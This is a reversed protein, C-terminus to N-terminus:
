LMFTGDNPTKPVPAPVKLSLGLHAMLDEQSAIEETSLNVARRAAEDKKTDYVTAELTEASEEAAATPLPDYNTGVGGKAASSGQGFSHQDLRREPSEYGGLGISHTEEQELRMRHLHMEHADMMGDGDEDALMMEEQEIEGDNDLDLASLDDLYAQVGHFDPDVGLTSADTGFRKMVNYAVLFKITEDLSPVLSKLCFELHMTRVRLEHGETTMTEPVEYYLNARPPVVDPVFVRKRWAIPITWVRIGLTHLGTNRLDERSVPHGHAIRDLIWLLVGDDIHYKWGAEPRNTMYTFFKVVPDRTFDTTSNKVADYAECIIGILANLLVLFGFTIYSWMWINTEITPKLYDLPWAMGLLTALCTTLSARMEAFDGSQQGFLLTGTFAYVIAVLLLIILWYFLEMIAHGLTRSILGFQPHFNLNKLLQVCVLISSVAALQKYRDLLRTTENLDDLMLLADALEHGAQLWRGYANNDKYVKFHYKSQVESCWRAYNVWMFILAIHIAYNVLDLVNHSDTFYEVLGGQISSVEVIEEVLEMVERVLLVILLVCFAYELYKRKEDDSTESYYDTRLVHIESSREVSGTPNRDFRATVISYLKLEANFLILKMQIVQSQSDLYGGEKLYEVVDLARTRNMDIDFVVPFRSTTDLVEPDGQDPFFGFPLGGRDLEEPKYFKKKLKENTARYLKSSPEFTPDVGFPHEDIKPVGNADTLACVAQKHTEPMDIMVGEVDKCTSVRTRNQILIPGVLVLNPSGAPYYRLRHTLNSLEAFSEDVMHKMKAPTYNKPNGSSRLRKVTFKHTMYPMDGLADCDPCAMSPIAYESFKVEPVKGTPIVSDIAGKIFAATSFPVHFHDIEDKYPWYIDNFGASDPAKCDDIGITPASTPQSTPSCDTTGDDTITCPPTYSDEAADEARAGYLKWNPGCCDFGDFGCEMGAFASDCIGDGLTLPSCTTRKYDFPLESQLKILSMNQGPVLNPRNGLIDPLTAKVRVTKSTTAATSLERQLRRMKQAKLLSSEDYVLRESDEPHEALKRRPVNRALTSVEAEEALTATDEGSAGLRRGGDDNYYGYYYYYYSGDDDGDDAWFDDVAGGVPTPEPTPGFTPRSTPAETCNIHDSTTCNVKLTENVLICSIWDQWNYYFPNKPTVTTGFGTTREWHQTKLTANPSYQAFCGSYCGATVGVSVDDDNSKSNDDDDDDDDDGYYDDVASIGFPLPLANFNAVNCTQNLCKKTTNQVMDMCEQPSTATGLYQEGEHWANTQVWNCTGWYKEEANAFSCDNDRNRAYRTILEDDTSEDDSVVPVCDDGTGTPVGGLPTCPCPDYAGTDGTPNICEKADTSPVGNSVSDWIRCGVNFASLQSGWPAGERLLTGRYYLRASPENHHMGNRIRFYYLEDSSGFKIFEDDKKGIALTGYHQSVCQKDLIEWWTTERQKVRGNEKIEWGDGYEDNLVVTLEIANPDYPVFKDDDFSEMKKALRTSNASRFNSIGFWQSLQAINETQPISLMAEKVETPNAYDPSDRFRNAFGGSGDFVTYENKYFQGTCSSFNACPLWSECKAPSHCIKGRVAPFALPVEVRRGTHHEKGDAGAMMEPEYWSFNAYAIRLEWDGEFLHVVKKTGFDLSSPDLENMRFPKGNVFFDGDFICVTEERGFETKEDHCLNWGARPIGAKAYSTSKKGKYGNAFAREVAKHAYYLKFPDFFDITIEQDIDDMKGCDASCGHFERSDPAPKFYPMEDPTDCRKNGCVPDQFVGSVVDEIFGWMADQNVLEAPGDPSAFVTQDQRYLTAFITNYFGLGLPKEINMQLMIVYLFCSIYFVFVLLNIDPSRL